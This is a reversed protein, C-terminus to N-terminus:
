NRMRKHMGIKVIMKLFRHEAMICRNYVSEASFDVVKYVFIVRHLFEVTNNKM